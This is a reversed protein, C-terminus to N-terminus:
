SKKIKTDKKQKASLVKWIELPFLIPYLFLVIKKGSSKLINLHKLYHKSILCYYIFVGIIFFLISYLTIYHATNKIIFSVSIYTVLIWYILELIYKFILKIGKVLFSFSDFTTSVFLGLLIYLFIIKLQELANIM